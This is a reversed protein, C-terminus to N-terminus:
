QRRFTNNRHLCWESTLFDGCHLEKVIGGKWLTSFVVSKLMYTQVSLKYSQFSVLWFITPVFSFCRSSDVDAGSNFIKEYDEISLTLCLIRSLATPLIEAKWTHWFCIGFTKKGQKEGRWGPKFDYTIYFLNSTLLMVDLSPCHQTKVEDPERRREWERYEQVRRMNCRLM